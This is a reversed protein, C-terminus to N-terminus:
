RKEGKKGQPEPPLPPFLQKTEIEERRHPYVSWQLGSPLHYVDWCAGEARMEELAHDVAELPTLGREDYWTRFTVVWRPAGTEDHGRDLWETLVFFGGDKKSM